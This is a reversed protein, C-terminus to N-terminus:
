SFFYRHFGRTRGGVGVGCSNHNVPYLLLTCEGTSFTVPYTHAECVHPHSMHCPVMASTYRPPDHHDSNVLETSSSPIPSYLKPYSSVIIPLVTIIHSPITNICINNYKHKFKINTYERESGGERGGEREGKKGGERRGKKGGERGGESM